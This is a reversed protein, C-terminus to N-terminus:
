RILRTLLQSKRGVGLRVEFQIHYLTLNVELDELQNLCILSTLSRGRVRTAKGQRSNVEFKGAAVASIMFLCYPLTDFGVPKLQNRERANQWGRLKSHALKTLLIHSHSNLKDYRFYWLPLLNFSNLTSIQCSCFFLFFAFHFLNCGSYSFTTSMVTLTPKYTHQTDTSGFTRVFALSSLVRSVTRLASLLTCFVFM